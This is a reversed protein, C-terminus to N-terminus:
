AEDKLVALATRLDAVDMAHAFLRRRQLLHRSMLHEAKANFREVCLADAKKVYNRIQSESVGWAREPASAYAYIDHLEAGGLRLEFIEEIRQRVVTKTAKGPM